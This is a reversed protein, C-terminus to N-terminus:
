CNACKLGKGKEGMWWSGEWIAVMLTNETDMLKNRIQKNM